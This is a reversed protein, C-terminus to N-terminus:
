VFVLLCGYCCVAVGKYGLVVWRDILLNEIVVWQDMDVVGGGM